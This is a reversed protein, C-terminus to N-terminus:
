KLFGERLANISKEYFAREDELENEECFDALKQFRAVPDTGSAWCVKAMCEPCFWLPRRDAEERHNSGCMGCEYLICHGMSFM